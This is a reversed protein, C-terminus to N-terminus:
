NFEPVFSKTKLTVATGARNGDATRPAATNGTMINSSTKARLSSSFKSSTNHQRKNISNEASSAEGFGLKTPIKLGCSALGAKLKDEIEPFENALQGLTFM